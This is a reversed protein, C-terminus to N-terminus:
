VDERSEKKDIKPQNSLFVSIATDIARVVHKRAHSKLAVALYSFSHDSIVLVGPKSIGIYRSDAEISSMVDKLPPRDGSYYVISM